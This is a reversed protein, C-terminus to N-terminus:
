KRQTKASIQQYMQSLSADLDQVHKSIEELDKKLADANAIQEKKIEGLDARYLAMEKVVQAQFNDFTIKQNDISRNLNIWAGVVAAIVGAITVLEKLTFTIQREYQDYHQYLNERRREPGTYESEDTAYRDYNGGRRM